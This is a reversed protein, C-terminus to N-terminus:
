LNFFVGSGATYPVVLQQHPKIWRLAATEDLVTTFIKYMIPVYWQYNYPSTEQLGRM